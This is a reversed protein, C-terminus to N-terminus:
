GPLPHRAPHFFRSDTETPPIPKDTPAKPLTLRFTSGKGRGESLATLTGGQAETLGKAIFLGLGLGGRVRQESLSGQQFADFIRSLLTAEIGIGQDIFEIAVEGPPGDITAISISSGSSSFKIANKLLNWMVQQLRVSDAVVHSETAGLDLHMEIKADAIESRCIELAFRLADHLDIAKLRLRVKHEGVLAFDTLEEILRTQVELNRRMMALVPRAEAFREEEELEQVGLLVPTLPTRLEHAIMALFRDKARVVPVAVAERSPPEVRPLRPTEISRMSLVVSTSDNLLLQGVTAEILRYSGDRTPHHFQVTATEKFGEIVNFFATYLSNLDGEYILEFISKGVLEEPEYGLLRRVAQSQSVIEGGRSVVTIVDAASDIIAQ